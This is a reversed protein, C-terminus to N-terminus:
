GRSAGTASDLVDVTGCLVSLREGPRTALVHFSFAQEAGEAFVTTIDDHHFSIYVRAPISTSGKTTFAATGVIPADTGIVRGQVIVNEYARLDLPDGLEIECSGPDAQGDRYLDWEALYTEGRKVEDQIVDSAAVEGIRM